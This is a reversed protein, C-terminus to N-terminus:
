KSAGGTTPMGRMVSQWEPYGWAREAYEMLNPPVINGHGIDTLRAIFTILHADLATAQHPGWLWPGAADGTSKPVKQNCLELFRTALELNKEPAGPELGSAAESVNSYM